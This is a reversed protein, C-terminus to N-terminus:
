ANFLNTASFREKMKRSNKESNNKLIANLKAKEEENDTWCKLRLLTLLAITERKVNQNLLNEKFNYTPNYEELRNKEITKLIKTPIKEIYKKDMSHLISYVESYIEKTKNNM